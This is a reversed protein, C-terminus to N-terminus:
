VAQAPSPGPEAATAPEGGCVRNRGAAKAAYLNEDARQLADRPNAPPAALVACAGGSITV